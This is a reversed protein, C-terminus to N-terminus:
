NALECKLQRMIGLLLCLLAVQSFFFNTDRVVISHQPYLVVRALFFNVANYWGNSADMGLLIVPVLGFLLTLGPARRWCSPRALWVVASLIIAVTAIGKELSFLSYDRSALFLLGAALAGVVPVLGLLWADWPRQISRDIALCISCGLWALCVLINVHEILDVNTDGLAAQMIIDATMFATWALGFIAGIFVWRSRARVLLALWAIGVAIVHVQFVWQGTYFGNLWGQTLLSEASLGAVLVFAFLLMFRPTWIIAEQGQQDHDKGAGEVAPQLPEEVPPIHQENTSAQETSM